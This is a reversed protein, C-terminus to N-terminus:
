ADPGSEEVEEPEEDDEVEEEDEMQDESDLRSLSVKRASLFCLGYRGCCERDQVSTELPRLAKSSSSSVLGRSSSSLWRYLDRLRSRSGAERLVKSPHLPASFGLLAPEELRSGMLPIRFFRCPGPLPTALAPLKRLALDM